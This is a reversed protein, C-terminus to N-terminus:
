AKSWIEGRRKAHSTTNEYVKEGDLYVVLPRNDQNNRGYEVMAQYMAQKIQQVNVVGSQGSPTNYVIEAGAEGALFMTGKDPLGGSAYADVETNGSKIQSGILLIGGALAAGLALAAPVGLKLANLGIVVGAIAGAVAGLITIAKTWGSMDDWANIISLIGAALLAFGAIIFTTTGLVSKLAPLVKTTFITSLNKFMTTVTVIWQVVKLAVLVGFAAVTIWLSLNLLKTKEAGEIVSTIMDAFLILIPAIATLLKSFVNGLAGLIKALPISANNMLSMFASFLRNVSDRFEENTQYLHILMSILLGIALNTKSGFVTKLLGGTIGAQAGIKALITILSKGLVVTVLGGLTSGIISVISLIGKARDDINLLGTNADTTIGLTELWTKAINESNASAKGLISDYKEMSKLIKDDIGLSETASGQEATDLARFKDFDLLKGSIENLSKLTAEAGVEMGEFNTDATYTKIAGMAKAMAELFGKAFALSTNITQLFGSTELLDVIVLGLYSKVDTWSEVMVRSQNAFSNITKEMDGIAGSGEMQQFIAYIALLRKETQSLQRVSKTGGISKYLQYLTNETIDFGSVSRIPRVQGALAAQFKTMAQEISVNYLSAYDLAMQTIGESLSYAMQDEMEGLSALMNKFIAQSNMLTKKSIGYAKNMQSVFATAADKNKGMAVTWLNLTETYDAGAQVIDAVVRGMRRAMYLVTTWKAFNFFGIGSGSNTTTKNFKNVINNLSTLGAEASRIEDIFPKIDKALKTFGAGVKDFDMKDLNSIKSINSLSKAVSALTQLKSVDISEAARAIQKFLIEIKQGGAVLPSQYIMDMARSLTRLKKATQEISSIAGTNDGLISIELTGATYSM